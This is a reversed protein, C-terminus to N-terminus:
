KRIRKHPYVRCHAMHTIRDIDRLREFTGIRIVENFTYGELDSEKTVCHYRNRIADANGEDYERWKLEAYVLDGVYDDFQRKSHAIVCIQKKM